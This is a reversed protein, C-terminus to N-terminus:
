EYPNRQTERNLLSSTAKTKQVLMAFMSATAPYNKSLEHYAAIRENLLTELLTVVQDLTGNADSKNLLEKILLERSSMGMPINVKKGIAIFENASIYNGSFFTNLFNNELASFKSKMHNHRRKM